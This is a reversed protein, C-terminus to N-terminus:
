HFTKPKNGFFNTGEWFSFYVSELKQHLILNVSHGKELGSTEKEVPMGMTKYLFLRKSYAYLSVAGLSLWLFM